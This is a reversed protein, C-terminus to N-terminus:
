NLVFLLCKFLLGDEDVFLFCDVVCLACCVCCVVCLGCCVVFVEFCRM